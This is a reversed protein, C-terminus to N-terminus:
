IEMAKAKRLGLKMPAWGTAFSLVAFGFWGSAAQVWPVATANSWPAGFALFIISGLIYVFSLILCFTGGFGSVIKSPNEERFNPYLVGLGTALGNLAMTMVSIACAFYATQGSEMKLMRCSVLMLLLTLILSATCTLVYKALIIRRLGLPALGVIWIRKGELSFQPFVFRTTLTALNLSCAGLNLYAVLNVWFPNTLQQSFHRLNIIYAGLLGFLVLSQGWQTTDRWFIRVDKTLLARRDSSLGPVLSFMIEVFGTDFAFKQKRKQFAKFWGWGGFVSGRSQVRSAADFFLGGMQTTALYGFFLVHSLLIAAFFISASIAGEAWNLVSASLWYSPLIPFQAFRTKLLLRDLVALVRTELMEDSIAEPRFWRNAAYLGCVALVVFTIQFSRRDMFRALSVSLFSGFIAPLIIFLAILLVTAIYFHWPLHNTLGYAALLPAILFLFAWSALLTSELLKWRFITLRSVPLTLLFTTERNRFFNTHSIVINSFLLLVFLFAFLLYLLRETLLTGLGPFASIFHLGRYFLWFSLALYGVIFLMIVTLFLQSQERISALRRWTQLLSVRMLMALHHKM